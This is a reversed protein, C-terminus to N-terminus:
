SAWKQDREYFEWQTSKRVSEYSVSTKSFEDYDTSKCCNKLKKTTKPAGTSAGNCRHAWKLLRSRLDAESSSVKKVFHHERRLATSMKVFSEKWFMPIPSTQTVGVACFPTKMNNLMNTKITIIKKKAGRRLTTDIKAIYANMGLHSWTTPRLIYRPVILFWHNWAGPRSLLEAGWGKLRLTVRLKM